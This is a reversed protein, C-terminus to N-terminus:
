AAYKQKRRWGLLGLAGLGSAFLPLTAPLPTAEAIFEFDGNGIGGDFLGSIVNVGAVLAFTASSFNSDGLAANIDGSVIPCFGGGHIDCPTSTLGGGPSVQGPNQGGATFPSVAATMAIGNDFLTFQDGSSKVDTVTLTGSGTLTITWSTGAPAGTASAFGGGIVPGDSGFGTGGVGFLATGTTTFSGTYWQNLVINDTVAHAPTTVFGFASIMAAVATTALFNRVGLTLPIVCFFADKTM